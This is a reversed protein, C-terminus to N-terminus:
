WIVRWSPQFAVPRTIEELHVELLEGDNGELTCVKPTGAIAPKEGCTEQVSMELSKQHHIYLYFLARVNPVVDIILFFRAMENLCQDVISWLMLKEGPNMKFCIVDYLITGVNYRNFPDIIFQLSALTVLPMSLIYILPALLVFSLVSLFAILRFSMPLLPEGCLIQVCDELLPKILIRCKKLTSARRWRALARNRGNPKYPRM